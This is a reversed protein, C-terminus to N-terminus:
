ALFERIVMYRVDPLGGDERLLLVIKFDTNFHIKKM